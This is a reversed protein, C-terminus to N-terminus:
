SKFYFLDNISVKYYPNNDDSEFGASDISPM